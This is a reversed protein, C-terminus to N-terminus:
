QGELGLVGLTLLVHLRVSGLKHSHWSYIELRRIRLYGSKKSRSDHNLTHIIGSALSTSRELFSRLTSSAYRSKFRARITRKAAAARPRDGLFNPDLWPGDAKPPMAIGVM